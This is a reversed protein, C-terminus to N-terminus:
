IAQTHVETNEPRQRDYPAYISQNHDLKHLGGNKLFWNLQKPYDIEVMDNLRM